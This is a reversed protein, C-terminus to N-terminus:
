TAQIKIDVKCFPQFETDFGACAITLFVTVLSYEATAAVGVSGNVQGRDDTLVIDGVREYVISRQDVGWTSGDLMLIIIIGVPGVLTSDLELDLRHFAEHDVALIRDYVGIGIHVM